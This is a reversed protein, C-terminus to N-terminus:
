CEERMREGTISGNGALKVQLTKLFEDLAFPTCKDLSIM